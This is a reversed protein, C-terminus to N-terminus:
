IVGASLMFIALAHALSAPIVGFKDALWACILGEYLTFILVMYGSDTVTIALFTHGLAFFLGSLM